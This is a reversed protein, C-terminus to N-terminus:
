SCFAKYRDKPGNEILHELLTIRLLHETSLCLGELIVPILLGGFLIKYLSYGKRPTTSIQGLPRRLLNKHVPLKRVTKQISSSTSIVLPYFADLDEIKLGFSQQTYFVERLKQISLSNASSRRPITDRKRPRQGLPLRQSFTEKFYKRRVYPKKITKKIFSSTFTM